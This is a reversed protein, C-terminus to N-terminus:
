PDKGLPVTRGAFGVLSLLLGYWCRQPSLAPHESKSQDTSVFRLIVMSGDRVEHVDLPNPSVQSLRHSTVTIFGHVSRSHKTQVPDRLSM